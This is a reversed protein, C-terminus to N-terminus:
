RSHHGGTGGIVRALGGIVGEADAGPRSSLRAWNRSSGGAGGHRAPDDAVGTPEGLLDSIGAPRSPRDERNLVNGGGERLTAAPDPADQEPAGLDGRDFSRLTLHRLQELGDVATAEDRLELRVDVPRVEDNRHLVQPWLERAIEIAAEDSWHEHRGELLGIEVLDDGPLRGTLGDDPEAAALGEVDRLVDGPLPPQRQELDWRRHRHVSGPALPRGDADVTDDTVDPERYRLRHIDVVVDDSAGRDVEVTGADAVDQAVPGPVPVPLHGGVDAPDFGTPRVVLLENGLRADREVPHDVVGVRDVIDGVGPDACEGFREAPAPRREVVGAPVRAVDLPRLMEDAVVELVDGPLVEEM